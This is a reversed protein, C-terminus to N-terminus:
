FKCSFKSSHPAKFVRGIEASLTAFFFLVTANFFIVCKQNRLKQPARYSGCNLIVGPILNVLKIKQNASAVRAIWGIKLIMSPLM